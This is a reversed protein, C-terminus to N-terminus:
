KVPQYLLRTGEESVSQIKHLNSFSIDDFYDQANFKQTKSKNIIEM